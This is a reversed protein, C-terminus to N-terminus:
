IRKPQRSKQPKGLHIEGARTVEVTPQLPCGEAQREKVITEQLYRRLPTGGRNPCESHSCIRFGTWIGGCSMGQQNRENLDVHNTRVDYSRKMAVRFSKWAGHVQIVRELREKLRQNFSFADNSLGEWPPKGTLLNVSLRLDRGFLMTTLSYGTVEAAASWEMFLLPLKQGLVTWQHELKGTVSWADM